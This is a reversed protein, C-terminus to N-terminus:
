RVEEFWEFNARLPTNVINQTVTVGFGPPCVIAGKIPWTYLNNAQVDVNKLIGLGFAVEVAGKSEQRLLGSPLAAGALKNAAPYTYANLLQVSSIFAIPNSDAASGIEMQTIVLNKGSAAPNWLQVNAFQAAVAAVVPCGAFMGGALTRAKEGDIISVVGATRRTGAESSGYAFRITQAKESTIEIADFDGQKMYFSAEANNMVGRVSGYRDVLRVSVPYPADIIEFYGGALVYSKVEGAAFTASIIELFTTKNQDM